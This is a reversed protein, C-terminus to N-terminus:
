YMGTGTHKYELKGDKFTLDFSQGISDDYFNCVIRTKDPFPTHISVEWESFQPLAEKLLGTITILDNLTLYEPANLRGFM